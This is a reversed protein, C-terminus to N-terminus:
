GGPGRRGAGAVAGALAQTLYTVFRVPDNDGAELSYWAVAAGEEEQRRCWDVLATTKGYGAPASFLILRATPAATIAEALRPRHLWHPRWPPMTLKSSLLVDRTPM